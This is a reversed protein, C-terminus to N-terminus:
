KKKYSISCYYKRDGNELTVLDNEKKTKKYTVIKGSSYKIKADSSYTMKFGDGIYKKIDIKAGKAVDTFLFTM